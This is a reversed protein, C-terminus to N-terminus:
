TAAGGQRDPLSSLLTVTRAILVMVLTVGIVVPLDRERASQWALQGIGPRGTLVEAPITVALASVVALGAVASLERSVSPLLHRVFIRHVPLGAAHACLMWGSNVRTRFLELAYLYTRPSVAVAVAIEVPLRAFVALLALFGSPVALVALSAGTAATRVVPANRLSAHAAAAVGTLFAGAAGLLVTRATLPMREVLSTAVSEGTIESKGLDGQLAGLFWAFSRAAGAREADRRAKLQAITEASYRPDSERIDVGAGPASRLLWGAIFAGAVLLVITDILLRAPKTSPM